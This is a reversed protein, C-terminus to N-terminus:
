RCRASVLSGQPIVKSIDATLSYTGNPNRIWGQAEPMTDLETIEMGSSAPTGEGSPSSGHWLMDGALSDTPSPPIGPNRANILTAARTAQTGDCAAIIDPSESLSVPQAAARSFDVNPVNLEVVGSFEPGRESTATIASDPSIFLGQSTVSVRGGAGQDANARISSGDLLAMVDADVVINGGEGLASASIDGNGLLLLNSVFLSLSGGEGGNSSTSLFGGNDILLNGASLVLQGGNGTGTSSATIGSNGSITVLPPDIFINGGNGTGGALASILSQSRLSLESNAQLFIDGGQGNAASATIQGQNLLRIFDATIRLNGATGPGDNRSTVEGFNSIELLSTSIEVNGGNGGTPLPPLGLRERVTPDQEQAASYIRSRNITGPVIGDVIVADSAIVSVDGADGSATAASGLSAGDRMNLNSTKVRVSGATGTSFSSSAIQSVFFSEPHYGLMSIARSADVDINGGTAREFAFSALLGGDELILDGTKLSINGAKSSGFGLSAIASFDTPSLYGDVLVRDSIVSVDGGVGSVLASSLIGGGSILSLNPAVVSVNAGRGVLTQALIGSRAIGSSTTTGVIDLSESATLSFNGASETGLNRIMAISGGLFKIQGANIDISGGVPGSADLVSFRDLHISGLLAADQYDLSWGNISPTLGVSGKEVSGLQIQGLPAGVVGGDLTVDGGVLSLTRGPLVQLGSSIGQENIAPFPLKGILPVNLLQKPSNLVQIQGSSSVFQLGTPVNIILLPVGTPASASFQHGGPLQFSDATTALFSGSLNLQVEPGFIIGSPNLLFLNAAGLVGLKGFINSPSGGTVRALINSIESPNSFYVGRGAGVNFESFSHFLAQGRSAGGVIVDSPVENVTQGPFIVSSEPGLSTDPQIQAVAWPSSFFLFGWPM